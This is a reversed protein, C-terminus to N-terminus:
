PLSCIQEVTLEGYDKYTYTKAKINNTKPKSKFIKYSQSKGLNISEQLSYGKNLYKYLTSPALNVRGAIMKASLMEGEFPYLKTM